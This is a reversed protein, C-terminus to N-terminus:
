LNYKNIDNLLIIYKEYDELDKESLLFGLGIVGKKNNRLNKVKANQGEMRLIKFKDGINFDTYGSDKILVVIYGRKFYRNFGDPYNYDDKNRYYVDGRYTDKVKDSFLAELTKLHKM